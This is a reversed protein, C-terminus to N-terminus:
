SQLSNFTTTLLILLSIRTCLLVYCHTLLRECYRQRYTAAALTPVSSSCAHAAARTFLGFLLHSSRSLMSVLTASGGKDPHRVLRMEHYTETIEKCTAQESLGLVIHAPRAMSCGKFSMITLYAEDVARIQAFSFTNCLSLYACAVAYERMTLLLGSPSASHM